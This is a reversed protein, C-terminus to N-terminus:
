RPCDRRTARATFRGGGKGGTFDGNEVLQRGRLWVHRPWGRVAMGEFPTYDVRQRLTSVSLVREVGPDLVVVDADCGPELRGKRTLGMLRAPAEAAVQAFRPLTLRGKLVGESFLLPVRTEVGPVGGPCRFVNGGSSEWKDAYSFSCHDTAVVDLTGAALGEWLAAADRATRLPPAMVYKLGEAAGEQYCNEDLLLYQPCTEASVPLDAKRAAAVHALAAASSLHAVYLPAGAVRALALMRFVAEEECLAPRALPHVEPGTRGQAQYDLALRRLMADNECHAVTLCGAAGMARLVDMVRGDDLMAAYTLYVKGSTYGQAAAPLVEELNQGPQFVAHVGYDVVAEGEALARVAEPQRLLSCGQPGFSPHEVVCTTGGCAAALTGAYFGDSVSIERGDMHASLSLHTHADVGGPMVICGEADVRRAGGRPLNEGVEVVSEDEFAVDARVVGTHRVLLGSHIVTRM